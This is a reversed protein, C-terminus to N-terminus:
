RLWYGAVLAIAGIAWKQTANRYRSDHLMVYIGGVLLVGIVVVRIVFTWRERQTFEAM